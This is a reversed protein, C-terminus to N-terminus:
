FLYLVCLKSYQNTQLHYIQDSGCFVSGCELIEIFGYPSKEIPLASKLDLDLKSIISPKSSLKQHFNLNHIFTITLTIGDNLPCKEQIQVSPTKTVLSDFKRCIRLVTGDSPRIQDM